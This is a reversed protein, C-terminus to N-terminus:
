QQGGVIDYKGIIASSLILNRSKVLYESTKANSPCYLDMHTNAGVGSPMNAGVPRM